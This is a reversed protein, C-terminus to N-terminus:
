GTGNGVAATRSSYGRKVTLRGRAVSATTSSRCSTVHLHSADERAVGMWMSSSEAALCGDHLLWFYSLMRHHSMGQREMGDM